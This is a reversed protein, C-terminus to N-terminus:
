RVVQGRGRFQGSFSALRGRVAPSMDQPWRDRSGQSSLCRLHPVVVLSEGQQVCGRIRGASEPASAEQVRRPFDQVRRNKGPRNQSPAKRNEVPQVPLSPFLFWSRAPQSTSPHRNRRSCARRGAPLRLCAELLRQLSRHRMSAGVSIASISVSQCKQEISLPMGIRCLACLSSAIRAARLAPSLDSFKLGRVQLCKESGPLFIPLVRVITTPPSVMLRRFLGSQLSFDITSQCVEISASMLWRL